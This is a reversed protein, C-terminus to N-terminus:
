KAQVELDCVDNFSLCTLLELCCGPPLFPHLPWPLVSHEPKQGVAEETGKGVCDLVEQGSPCGYHASSEWM